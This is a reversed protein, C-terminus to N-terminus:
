ILYYLWFVKYYHLSEPCPICYLKIIDEVILMKNKNVVYVARVAKGFKEYAVDFLIEEVAKEIEYRDVADREIEEKLKAYVRKYIKTRKTESYVGTKVM